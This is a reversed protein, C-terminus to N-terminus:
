SGEVILTKNELRTKVGYDSLFRLVASLMVGRDMEGSFEFKPLKGEYKVDVDYWRELQKMVNRLDSNQFIFIGNKWALVQNIDANKVVTLANRGAALAQQGPELTVSHDSPGKQLVRVRGEVLTTRIEGEDAYANIDFGTGLVEVTSRGDVDVIFPRSKDTAVQLYGEGTIKIARNKGAFAAPYTISSAANLWVKTGDPLVLQYQGGRPTVMTNMMVRGQPLGKVDYRIAGNALKVIAANGQQAIAGNAASDLVITTGDSLTLLAKNSGPLKDEAKPRTQSVAPDEKKNRTTYFYAGIGCIILIAAAYKFYGRSLFHVRPRTKTTLIREAGIAAAVGGEIRALEESFDLGTKEWQHWDQDLIQHIAERNAPDRLLDALTQQEEATLRGQAYREFYYTLTQEAM